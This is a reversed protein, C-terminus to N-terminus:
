ANKAQGPNTHQTPSVQNRLWAVALALQQAEDLLAMTPLGAANLAPLLLEQAVESTLRMSMPLEVLPAKLQQINAAAVVGGSSSSGDAINLQLLPHIFGGQAVIVDCLERYAEQQQQTSSSHQPTTGAAARCTPVAARRRSGWQHLSRLPIGHLAIM